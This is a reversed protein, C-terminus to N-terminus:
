VLQRRLVKGTANRPLADVFEFVRPVKFRALRNAILEKLEQASVQQGAAIVVVAKLAQGFQDDDIGVVVAEGVRDDTNLLDEIESPYVNEGGSVIMDDERGVVFLRGRDDFYGLDGTSILGAVVDRGAGGTYGDYRAKSNVCIRGVTGPPVPAGHESLVEVRVGLAPRGATAPDRRLDAPRAITAAAVETSGYVNYLVQGFRDLAETALRGPLASGSSAIVRLNETDARALQAPPLACIRQLMTPVLVLGHARHSSLLSLVEGADFEPATFVSGSLGLCTLLAALGWGHFFPAAVVTRDRLRFPISALVSAVGHAGSATSRSAGKPRGTTGSTLIVLRSDREPPEVWELPRDEVIARMGTADLTRVGVIVSVVAGFDDDHLVTTVNEAAIVDALQSGGMATNLLVIDAGVMAVALLAYVFTPSNRCLIGVRDASGVGRRKLAGALAGSGRWLGRYSVCQDSTAVAAARPYRAASAAVAALFGTGYPFAALVARSLRDPRECWSTNARWLIVSRQLPGSPVASLLDIALKLSRERPPAVSGRGVDCVRHVEGRLCCAVALQGLPRASQGVM